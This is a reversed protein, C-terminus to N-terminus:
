SGPRGLAALKRSALIVHVEEIRGAADLDCRLLVRPAQSRVTSAFEILLAPSGNVLRREIRAGAARRKAVRLYLRMVAHRGFLPKALATYEGASDTLTRADETLLRELGAADQQLLCRLFEELAARTRGELEPSPRRPARDYGRMTTRARHLLVRVNGESTGLCDAVERASYDFVDQLILAARQKPKLAELALLFAFSVSELLEYRAEPSARAIGDRPAADLAARDAALEVADDGTALPEPLWPGAYRQRKRRRLADISLNVVVRALWRRWADGLDPPAQEMARVFAEQVVDQADDASGTLRYSVGFLFGRQSRFIGGLADSEPGATSRSM